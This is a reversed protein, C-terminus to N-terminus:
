ANDLTVTRWTLTVQSVGLSPGVNLYVQGDVISFTLDLAYGTAETTMQWTNNNKIGNLTYVARYNASSWKALVVVIATFAKVTFVMNPIAQGAGLSGDFVSTRPITTDSPYPAIQIGNVSFQGGSIDISNPKTTHQTGYLTLPGATLTASNTLPLLSSTYLPGNILQLSPSTIQLPTSGSVASLRVKSM